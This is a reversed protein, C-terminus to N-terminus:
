CEGCFLTNAVVLARYEGDRAVYLDTIFPM